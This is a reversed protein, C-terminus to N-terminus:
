LLLSVTNLKDYRQCQLTLGFTTVVDASHTKACQSVFVRLYMCILGWVEYLAMQQEGGDVMLQEGEAATDGVICTVGFQVVQELMM